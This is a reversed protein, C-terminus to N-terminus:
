MVWNITVTIIAILVSMISLSIKIHQLLKRESNEHCSIHEDIMGKVNSIKGDGKTLIVNIDNITKEIKETTKQLKNFDTNNHKMYSNLREEVKALIIESHNENDKTM